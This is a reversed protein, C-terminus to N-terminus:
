RQESFRLFFDFKSKHLFWLYVKKYLTLIGLDKIDNIDLSETFKSLFYVKVPYNSTQM